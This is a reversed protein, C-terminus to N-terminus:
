VKNEGNDECGVTEEKARCFKESESQGPPEKDRGGIWEQKNDVSNLGESSL